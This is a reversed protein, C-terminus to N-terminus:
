DQYRNTSQHNRKPGCRWIRLQNRGYRFWDCVTTNRKRRGYNNFNLNTLRHHLCFYDNEAFVEM